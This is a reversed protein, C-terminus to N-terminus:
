RGSSADARNGANSTNISSNELKRSNVTGGRRIDMGAYDCGAGRGSNGWARIVSPAYFTGIGIAAWICYTVITSHQSQGNM